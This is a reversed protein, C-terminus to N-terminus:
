KENAVLIPDLGLQLLTLGLLLLCCHVPIYFIGRSSYTKKGSRFKVALEAPTIKEALVQIVHDIKSVPICGTQTVGM